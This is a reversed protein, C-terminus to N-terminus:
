HRFEVNPIVYGSSTKGTSINNRLFNINVDKELALRISKTCWVKHPTGDKEQLELVLEPGFKGTRPEMSIIKYIKETPLDVWKKIESQLQLSSHNFDEDTPFRSM